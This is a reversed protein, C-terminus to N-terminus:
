EGDGTYGDSCYDDTGKMRGTIRCRPFSVDKTQYAGCYKCRIVEVADVPPMAEVLEILAQMLECTIEHRDCRIQKAIINILEDANILRM